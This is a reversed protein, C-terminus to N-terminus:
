PMPARNCRSSSCVPRVTRISAVSMAERGDRYGRGWEDWSAQTTYTSPRFVSDPLLEDNALLKVMLEFLAAVQHPQTTAKAVRNRIEDALPGEWDTPSEAFVYKALSDLSVPELQFPFPFFPVDWPYDDRSLNLPAGIFRLVNQVTVLHGMEEKAVGLIVEQWARVRAAHEPPVQPGGLSWAAYLYQDM